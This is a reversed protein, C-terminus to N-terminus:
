RMAESVATAVIFAMLVAAIEGLTPRIGFPYVLLLLFAFVLGGALYRLLFKGVVKVTSTM